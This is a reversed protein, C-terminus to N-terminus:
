LPCINALVQAMANVEYKLCDTMGLVIGGVWHIKVQWWLLTYM